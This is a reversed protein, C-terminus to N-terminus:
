TRHLLVLEGYIFGLFAVSSLSVIGAIQLAEMVESSTHAVVIATPATLKRVQRIFKACDVGRYKTINIQADHLAAAKDIQKKILTLTNM